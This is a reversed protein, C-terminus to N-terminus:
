PKKFDYDYCTSFLVTLEEFAINVSWDLFAANRAFYGIIIGFCTLLLVRM